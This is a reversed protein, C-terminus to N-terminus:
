KFGYKVKIQPCCVFLFPFHRRYVEIKRRARTVKSNKSDGVRSIDVIRRIRSWSRRTALWLLLSMERLHWFRNRNTIWIEALYERRLFAFERSVYAHRPDVTAFSFVEGWVSDPLQLLMPRKDTGSSDSHPTWDFWPIVASSPTTGSLILARKDRWQRYLTGIDRGDEDIYSLELVTKLSKRSLTCPIRTGQRTMTGHAKM